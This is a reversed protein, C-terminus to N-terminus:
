SVVCKGHRKKCKPDKGKEIKRQDKYHEHGERHITDQMHHDVHRNDHNWAQWADHDGHPAPEGALPHKALTKQQDRLIAGNHRNWSKWAKEWQDHSAYHERKPEDFRAYLLDRALLAVADLERATLYVGDDSRSWLDYDGRAYLDYDSRARCSYHLSITMIPRLFPLVYEYESSYAAAFTAASALFALPAFTSLRM